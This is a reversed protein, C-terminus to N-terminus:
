RRVSQRLVHLMAAPGHVLEAGTRKRLKWVSRDATIDAAVVIDSALFIKQLEAHRGLTRALRRSEVNDRVLRGAVGVPGPKGAAVSLLAAFRGSRLKALPLIDLREDHATVAPGGDSAYVATGTVLSAGQDVTAVVRKWLDDIVAQPHSSRGVVISLHLPKDPTM